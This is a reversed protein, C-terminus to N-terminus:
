GMYVFPIITSAAAKAEGHISRRGHPGLPAPRWRRPLVRAAAAIPLFIAFLGAFLLRSEREETRLRALPVSAHM